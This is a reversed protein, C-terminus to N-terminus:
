DIPKQSKKANISNEARYVIVTTKKKPISTNTPKPNNGYKEM